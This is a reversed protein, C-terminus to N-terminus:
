ILPTRGEDDPLETEVGRELLLQIIRQRGRWAANIVANREADGSQDADAGRSLLSLVADLDGKEAADQLARDLDRRSTEGTALNALDTILSGWRARLRQARVHEQPKLLSRLRETALKAGPNGAEAALSWWFAAEADDPEANQKAGQGTSRILALLSQAPAYGQEAAHTLWKQAAAMDRLVTEGRLLKGALNYQTYPLEAHAAKSLRELTQTRAQEPIDAVDPQQTLARRIRADGNLVDVILNRKRGSVARLFENEITAPSTSKAGEPSTNATRDLVTKDPETNSALASATRANSERAPDPDPDPVPAPVVVV